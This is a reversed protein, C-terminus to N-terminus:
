DKKIGLKKHGFPWWSARGVINTVAPLLLTVVVFAELFIGIAVAIGLQFM